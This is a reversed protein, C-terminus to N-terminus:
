RTTFVSLEVIRWGAPLREWVALYTGVAEARGQPTDVGATWRGRSYALHESARMVEVTMTHAPNGGRFFRAWAERNADRGLVPQRGQPSVVYVSDAFYAAIAAANPQQTTRAFAQAAGEFSASPAASPGRLACGSTTVLAIALVWQTRM